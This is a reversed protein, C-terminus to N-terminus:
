EEVASLARDVLIHANDRFRFKKLPDRVVVLIGADRLAVLHRFVEPKTAIIHYRDKLITVVEDSLLPESERLIKVIYYRAESQFVTLWVRLPVTSNM